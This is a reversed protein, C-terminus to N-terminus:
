VMISILLSINKRYSLEFKDLFINEIRRVFFSGLGIELSPNPILFFRIPFNLNLVWLEASMVWNAM